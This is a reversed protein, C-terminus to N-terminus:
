ENNKRRLEDRKKEAIFKEIGFPKRLSKCGVVIRGDELSEERVVEGIFVM